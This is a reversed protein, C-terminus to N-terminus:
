QEVNDEILNCYFIMEYQANSKDNDQFANTDGRHYVIIRQVKRRIKMIVGESFEM